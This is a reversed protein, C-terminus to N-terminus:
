ALPANDLYTLFIPDLISIPVRLLPNDAPRFVVHVNLLTIKGIVNITTIKCYVGTKGHIICNISGNIPKIPKRPSAAIGRTKPLAKFRYAPIAPIKDNSNVTFSTNINAVM